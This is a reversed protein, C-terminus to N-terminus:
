IVAGGGACACILHFMLNTLRNSASALFRKSLQMETLFLRLGAATRIVLSSFHILESAFCAPTVARLEAPIQQDASRHDTVLM